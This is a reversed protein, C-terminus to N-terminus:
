LGRSVFWLMSSWPERRHAWQCHPDPSCVPAPLVESLELLKESRTDCSQTSGWSIVRPDLGRPTFQLPSAPCLQTLSTPVTTLPSLLCSHPSLFILPYPLNMGHPLSSRCTTHGLLCLFYLLLLLLRRLPPCPQTSSSLYPKTQRNLDSICIQHSLNTSPLFVM